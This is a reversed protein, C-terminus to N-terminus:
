RMEEMANELAAAVERAPVRGLLASMLRGMALRRVLDPNRRKAAQSAEAVRQLM